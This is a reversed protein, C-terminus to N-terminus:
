TVLTFKVATDSHTLRVKYPPLVEDMFKLQLSSSSGRNLKRFKKVERLVRVSDVILYRFTRTHTLFDEADSRSSGRPNVQSSSLNMSYVAVGNVVTVALREAFLTISNMDKYSLSILRSGVQLTTM